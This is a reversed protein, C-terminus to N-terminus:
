SGTKLPALNTRDAGLPILELDRAFVLSGKEVRFSRPGVAYFGAAYPERAGEFFTLDFRLPWEEGHFWVAADQVVLTVTGTGDKKNFTRIEPARKSIEIKM